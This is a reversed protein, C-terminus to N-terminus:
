LRRHKAIHWCVKGVMSSISINGIEKETLGQANFSKSRFTHKNADITVCVKLLLGFNPHDFVLWDNPKPYAIKFYNHILVFDGDLASPAMSHGDVRLIKLM